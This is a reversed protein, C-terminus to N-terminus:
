KYGGNTDALSRRRRRQAGRSFALISAPVYEWGLGLSNICLQNNHTKAIVSDLLLVNTAKKDIM